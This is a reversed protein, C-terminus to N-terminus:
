DDYVEFDDPSRSAAIELCEDDHDCNPRGCCKCYVEESKVENEGMNM